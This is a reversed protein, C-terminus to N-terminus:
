GDTHKTEARDVGLPQSAHLLEALLRWRKVRRQKIGVGLFREQRSHLRRHCRRPLQKPLSIQSRAKFSSAAQTLLRTTSNLIPQNSAYTAHMATTTAPVHYPRSRAIVM